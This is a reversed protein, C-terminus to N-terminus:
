CIGNSNSKSLVTRETILIYSGQGFKAAKINFFNMEKKYLSFTPIVVLLDQKKLWNEVKQTKFRKLIILKLIGLLLKQLYALM